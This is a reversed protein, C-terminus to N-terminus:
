TRRNSALLGFRRSLYYTLAAAIAFGLGLAIALVGCVVAGEGPLIKLAHLLLFAGGFMISVVGAQVGLLISGFPAARVEQNLRLADTLNRGADTSLYALLAETSDIRELLRDYLSVQLRAAQM